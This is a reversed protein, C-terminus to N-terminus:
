YSTAALLKVVGVAAVTNQCSQFQQFQTLVATLRYMSLLVLPAVYPTFKMVKLKSYFHSNSLAFQEALFLQSCQFGWDFFV